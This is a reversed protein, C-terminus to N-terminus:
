IKLKDTGDKRSSMNGYCFESFGKQDNPITTSATTYFNRMSYELEMENTRGAYIRPDHLLTKVSDMIKTETTENYAEAPARNPNGNLEPLLVNMLPNTATPKTTPTSLQGFLEKGSLGREYLVIAIITFLGAWVINLSQTVAFGLITMVIVIRTITNLKESVSMSEQPWMQLHEKKFLVTYDHIWFTM